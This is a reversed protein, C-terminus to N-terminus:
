HLFLRTGQKGRQLEAQLQEIHAAQANCKDQLKSHALKLAAYKGAQRKLESVDYKEFLQQMARDGERM